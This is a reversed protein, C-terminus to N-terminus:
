VRGRWKMWLVFSVLLGVSSTIFATVFTAQWCEAGKCVNSDGILSDTGTFHAHSASVFAYLYSFLPTGIFPAYTIVGFNRGLNHMGWISSVISPSFDLSCSNLLGPRHCTRCVPRYISCWICHWDWPQCKFIILGTNACM